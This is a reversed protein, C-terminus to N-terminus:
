VDLLVIGLAGAGFARVQSAADEADFTVTRGEVLGLVVVDGWGLVPSNAVDGMTPPALLVVYVESDLDDFVELPVLRDSRDRARGAPVFGLEGDARHLTRRAASPLRWRRVGRIVESLRARGAGVDSLGPRSVGGLRASLAPRDLQADVLLVRRGEAALEAAVGLALGRVARDHRASSLVMRRPEVGAPLRDRAASLVQAYQASTAGYRRGQRGVHAWVQLGTVDPFDDDNNVRPRRQQSLVLGAAALAGTMMAVVVMWATRPPSEGFTSDRYARVYYDGSYYRQEGPIAPRLEDRADQEAAETSARYVNDLATVLHPLAALTHERNTDSYELEVHAGMKPRTVTMRERVEQVSLPLGALEKLEVAYAGSIAMTLVNQMRTRDVGISTAAEPADMQPVFLGATATYSTPLTGGATVALAGAGLAGVVVFARFRRSVRLDWRALRVAEWREEGHGNWRVDAEPPAGSGGDDVLAPLTSRGPLGSWRAGWSPVQLAASLGILGWALKNNLLPLFMSGSLVPLMMVFLTTSLERAQLWRPRAFGVLAIVVITIFIVVGIAGLDGALDLWTNHSSVEPRTETLHQSGPTVLLHPVVITRLQGLGYGVLPQDRILDITAAWLDLRGAGRDSFGRQLNAPNAVFGVLFAFGAVFLSGIAVGGRRTPTLGPRTVMTGVIAIAGGILGSRSGAGAAGALVVLLAFTYASRMRPDQAHRRYYVTLPIMSAQLLGFFNPDGGFGQSRTGLFLALIGAGSGFMGGVWYARLFQQIKQHSDILLGTICFFALGLGLVGVGFMWAGASESWIGSATSWLALVLVPGWHRMPIAPPRWREAVLKYIMLCAAIGAIIRGMRVPGVGLGDFHVLFAAVEIFLFGRQWVWILIGATVALVILALVAWKNMVALVLLPLSILAALAVALRSWAPPRPRQPGPAPANSREITQLRTGV